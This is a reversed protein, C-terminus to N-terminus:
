GADGAAIRDGAARVYDGLDRVMPSNGFHQASEEYLAKVRHVLEGAEVETAISLAKLAWDCGEAVAGDHMYASALNTVSDAYFSHSPDAGALSGNLIVVADRPRGQLLLVAGAKGALTFEDFAGFGIWPPSGGGLEVMAKRADEFREWCHRGQGNTAYMEASATALRARTTATAGGLAVKLGTEALQLGDAPKGMWTALYSKYGLVLAELERHDAERAAAYAIDLYASGATFDWLGMTSLWGAVAAYEGVLRVLRRRLSEPQARLDLSLLRKIQAVSDGVQIRTPLRVEVMSKRLLEAAEEL